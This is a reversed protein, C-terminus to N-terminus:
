RGNLKCAIKHLVSLRVRSTKPKESVVLVLAPDLPTETAFNFDLDQPMISPTVYLLNFPQLTWVIVGLPGIELLVLPSLLFPLLALHVLVCTKNLVPVLGLEASVLAGQKLKAVRLNRKRPQLVRM